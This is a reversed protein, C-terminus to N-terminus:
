SRRARRPPRRRRRTSPRRRSSRRRRRRAAPAGRGRRTWTTSSTARTSSRSRSAATSAPADPTMRRESAVAPLMAAAIRDAAAPSPVSEGSKQAPQQAPQADLALHQRVPPQRERASRAPSAGNATARAPGHGASTPRREEVGLPRDLVDDVVDDRSSSPVPGVGDRIIRSPQDLARDWWPGLRSRARAPRGGTSGLARQRCGARERKREPRFDEFRAASSGAGTRPAGALEGSRGRTKRSYRRPRRHRDRRPLTSELGSQAGISASLAPGVNARAVAHGTWRRRPRPRAADTAAEEDEARTRPRASSRGSPPRTPNPRPRRASM